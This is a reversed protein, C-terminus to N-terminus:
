TTSTQQSNQQRALRAMKRDTYRKKGEEFRAREEDGQCKLPAVGLPRGDEGLSVFTFYATNTVRRSGPLLDEAETTVQLSFM